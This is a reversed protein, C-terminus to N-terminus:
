LNISPLPMGELADHPNVQYIHGFVLGVEKDLIAYGADL